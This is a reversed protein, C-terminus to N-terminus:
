PVNIFKVAALHYVLLVRGIEPLSDSISSFVFFSGCGIEDWGTTSRKREWVTYGGQM